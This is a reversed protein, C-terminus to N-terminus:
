LCEECVQVFGGYKIKKGNTKNAEQINQEKELQAAQQPLSFCVFYFLCYM